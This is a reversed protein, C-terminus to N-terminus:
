GSFTFIFHVAAPDSTAVAFALFMVLNTRKNDIERKSQYKAEYYTYSVLFRVSPSSSSSFCRPSKRKFTWTDSLDTITDDPLRTGPVKTNSLFASFAMVALFSVTAAFLRRRPQRM